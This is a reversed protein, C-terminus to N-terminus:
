RAHHSYWLVAFAGLRVLVLVVAVVVAVTLLARQFRDSRAFALTM